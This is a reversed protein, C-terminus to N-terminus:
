EPNLQGLRDAKLVDPRPKGARRLLARIDARIANLDIPKGAYLAEDLLGAIRAGDARQTEPLGTFIRDLPSNAAAGWHQAAHSQLFIKVQQPTRAEELKIPPAPSFAAPVPPFRGSTSEGTAPDSARVARGRMRWGWGLAGALALALIGIVAYLSDIAASGSSAAVIAPAIRAAPVLAASAAQPPPVTAANGPAVDITEAPLTAVAARDHATDWWPVAIAPVAIRVSKLPIMTYSEERWGSLADGKAAGTQPKDAYVKFDADDQRTELSPLQGGTAGDAIMMIRRTLPQGAKADKLGSWEDRIQLSTLPLWPNVGPVAPRVDLAVANGQAAFPQTTAFGQMRQMMQLPDPFNDFADDDPRQPALAEGQVVPAPIDLRGSRLPTVIFDYRVRKVPEGNVVADTMQPKDPKDVVAGDIALDQLALDTVNRHAIVTVTYRM